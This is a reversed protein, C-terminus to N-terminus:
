TSCSPSWPLGSSSRANNRRSAVGAGGFSSRVRGAPGAGALGAGRTGRSTVAARHDLSWSSSVVSGSQWAPPLADRHAITLDLAHPPRPRHLAQHAAFRPRQQEPVTRREPSTRRQAVTRVSDSRAELQDTDHATLVHPQRATSVELQNPGRRQLAPPRACMLYAALMRRCRIRGAHDPVCPIRPRRREGDRSRSASASADRRMPEVESRWSSRKRAFQSDLPCDVHFSAGRSCPGHSRRDRPSAPTCCEAAIGSTLAPPSNM